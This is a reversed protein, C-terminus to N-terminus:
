LKIWARILQFATPSCLSVKLRRVINQRSYIRLCIETSSCEVFTRIVRNHYFSVLLRERERVRALRLGRCSVYTESSRLTKMAHFKM